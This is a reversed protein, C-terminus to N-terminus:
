LTKDLLARVFLYAGFCVSIGCIYTYVRPEKEPLSINGAPHRLSVHWLPLIILRWGATTHPDYRVYTSTVNIQSHVNYGPVMNFFPRKTTVFRSTM